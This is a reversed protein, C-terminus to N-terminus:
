FFFARTRFNRLFSVGQRSSLFDLPSFFDRRSIQLSISELLPVFSVKEGLGTPLPDANGVAKERVIVGHTDFSWHEASLCMPLGNKLLPLFMTRPSLYQSQHESWSTCRSLDREM